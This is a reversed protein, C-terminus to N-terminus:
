TLKESSKLGENLLEELDDIRSCYALYALLVQESQSCNLHQVILSIESAGFHRSFINHLWRSVMPRSYKVRHALEKQDIGRDDLIAGLFDGLTITNCLALFDSTKSFDSSLNYKALYISIDVAM